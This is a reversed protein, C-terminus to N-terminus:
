YSLLQTLPAILIILLLSVLVHLLFLVQTRIFEQIAISMM